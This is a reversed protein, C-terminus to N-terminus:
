PGVFAAGKGRGEQLFGAMPTGRQPTDSQTVSGTTVCPKCVAQVRPPQEAAGAREVGVGWTQNGCPLLVCVGPRRVGAWARAEPHSSVTGSNVYKKKKMKKKPNIVQLFLWNGCLFTELCAPQVGPAEVLGQIHGLGRHASHASFM